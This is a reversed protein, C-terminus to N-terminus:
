SELDVSEDIWRLYGSLGDQVPVAILEPLEYAHRRVVEQRLRDFLERRTKLLLLCEPDREIRGQWAYVSTVGEVVNACAALRAEVLAAGLAVASDRDACTSLVLLYPTPAENM